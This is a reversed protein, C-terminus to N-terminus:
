YDIIVKRVIARLHRRLNPYYRRQKRRLVPSYYEIYLDKHEADLQSEEGQIDTAVLKTFFECVAVRLKKDEGKYEYDENLLVYSLKRPDLKNVCHEVNEVIVLAGAPANLIENYETLRIAFLNTRESNRINNKFDYQESKFTKTEKDDITSRKNQYMKYAKGKIEIPTIEQRWVDIESVIEAGSFTDIGTLTDMSVNLGSAIKYATEFPPIRKGKAYMSITNQHVGILEALEKESMNRKKLLDKLNRSFIVDLNPLSYSM